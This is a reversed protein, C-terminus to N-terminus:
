VSIDLNGGTGPATAAIQKLADASEQIMEALGAAADANMRMMKAAAATAVQAQNAAVMAAAIATADM